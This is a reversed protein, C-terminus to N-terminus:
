AVTTAAVALQEVLPEVLGVEYAQGDGAVAVEGDLVEDLQTVDLPLVFTCVSRATHVEVRM